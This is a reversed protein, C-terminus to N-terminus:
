SPRGGFLVYWTFVCTCTRKDMLFDSTCNEKCGKCAWGGVEPEVIPLADIDSRLAVTPGKGNGITAVIGTGVYGDRRAPYASTYYQLILNHIPNVLVMYIRHVYPTKPLSIVLYM